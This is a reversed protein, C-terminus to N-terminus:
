TTMPIIQSKSHLIKILNENFNRQHFFHNENLVIYCLIFIYHINKKLNVFIYYEPSLSAYSNLQTILHEENKKTEMLRKYKEMKENYKREEQKALEVCKYNHRIFDLKQSIQYNFTNESKKFTTSPSGDNLYDLINQPLNKNIELLRIPKKCIPCNTNRCAACFIHRCNGIMFPRNVHETVSTYCRNCYVWDM